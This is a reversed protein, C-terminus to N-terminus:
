YTLVVPKWTGIVPLWISRFSEWLMVNFLWSKLIIGKKFFSVQLYGEAKWNNNKFSNLYSLGLLFLIWIKSWRIAAISALSAVHCWNNRLQHLWCPIHFHFPSGRSTSFSKIIHIVRDSAAFGYPETGLSLQPLASCRKWINLSSSMSVDFFCTEIIAFSQNSQKLVCITQCLM